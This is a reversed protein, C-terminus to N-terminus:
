TEATDKGNLKSTNSTSAKCLEYQCLKTYWGYASYTQCNDGFLYFLKSTLLKWTNNQLFVPCIKISRNESYPNIEEKQVSIQSYVM